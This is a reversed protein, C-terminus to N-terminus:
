LAEFVPSRQLIEHVAASVIVASTFYVRSCLRLFSLSVKV